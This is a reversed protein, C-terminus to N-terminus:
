SFKTIGPKAITVDNWKLDRHYDAMPPGLTETSNMAQEWTITQGTYAVMRALVGLLSSYALKEGENIPKGKRISAFLEEHQTEYMNNKEGSYVWNNKGTLEHLGKGNDIFGKGTTGTISVTNANSCGEQQRSFHYCKIGNAYEFEIAFHDYVNGYVDAVRVQRGGTGTAKLPPKDGMAWSMLDLSHVMMECIFDGSLWTYYLWNKLKYEMDTWEPQKEKVWLAGGNRTSSVSVVDGIKGQSIQDYFARKGYDYRFCFGSVVALNKEKAKKSAALVKRVGPADIAVPKEAFVHKGANVAEHFHEPRFAPPTTLLVVDVDTALVKKYADFGIFINEPSVKVRDPYLEKLEKLSQEAQPLFIDGVATLIVDPDAQLAQAAAGNGRGGCGILGVKLTKNKQSKQAFALDSIMTGAVLAAGAKQLFSRRGSKESTEM